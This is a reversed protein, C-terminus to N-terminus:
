PQCSGIYKESDVPVCFKGEVSRINACAYQTSPCTEGAGCPEICGGEGSYRDLLLCYSGKKCGGHEAITYSVSLCSGAATYCFQQPYKPCDTDKSCAGGAAALTTAGHVVCPDCLAGEEDFSKFCAGAKHRCQLKGNGADECRAYPPCSTGTKTCLKSCFGKGSVDKVCLDEVGGCQDDIVCPHCFQRRRCWRETEATKGVEALSCWYQPPCDTDAKCKGSCYRDASGEEGLCRYGSGCKGDLACDAGMQGAGTSYVRPYCAVGSQVEGCDFPKGQAIPCDTQRKCVKSCFGNVCLKSACEKDDTCPAGFGNLGADPTSGGDDSCGAHLTLGLVLTAIFQKM